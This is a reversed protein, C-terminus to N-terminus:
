STLLFRIRRKTNQFSHFLPALRDYHASHLATVGECLMVFKVATPSSSSQTMVKKFCMSPCACLVSFLIIQDLVSLYIPVSCAMCSLQANGIWVFTCNSACLGEGYRGLSNMFLRMRAIGESTTVLDHSGAVCKDLCNGFLM